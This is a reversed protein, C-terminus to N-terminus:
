RPMRGRDMAGETLNLKGLLIAGADYLRSVVTADFRPVHNALVQCGGMTPVGATFCLDKVAIPVGHLPGRYRGAEIERHAAHADRMAQEHLVTVYAHLEGDRLDIRDLMQQTLDVPSLAGLEILPALQSITHFHLPESM